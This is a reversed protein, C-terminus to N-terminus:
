GTRARRTCCVCFTGITADAASNLLSDATYTGHNSGLAAPAPFALGTAGESPWVFRVDSPAGTLDLLVDSSAVVVGGTVGDFMKRLTRLLIDIPAQFVLRSLLGVVEVELTARGAGTVCLHGV